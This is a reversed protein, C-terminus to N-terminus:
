SAGPNGPNLPRPRLPAIIKDDFGSFSRQHKAILQPEFESNRDRPIQVQMPGSDTRLHKKSKCNRANDLESKSRQHKQYGLHHTMEAELVKEIVAKQLQKLIGDKGLLDEPSKYDKLLETILDENISM